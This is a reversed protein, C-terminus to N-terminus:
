SARATLCAIPVTLTVGTGDSAGRDLRNELAELVESGREPVVAAWGEVFGIRMFSHRLIAAGNAFRLQFSRETVAHAVFGSAALLEAAREVTTRGQVLREVREHADRVGLAGILKFDAFVCPNGAERSRLV